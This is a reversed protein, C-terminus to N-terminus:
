ALAKYAKELKKDYAWKQYGPGNYIRAFTRWDHRELAKKLAPDSIIFDLMIEIQGSLGEEAKAKFADASPFGLRRWHAGMVQGVGWSTSEIAAERDILMAPTLLSDWREQQSKPNRVHGAKPSALGLERADHLKPPFNKLRNWFYHGEFRILPKKQGHVDAFAHGGTEVSTVALVEHVPLGTRQAVAEIERKQDDTFHTM